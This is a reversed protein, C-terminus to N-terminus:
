PPGREADGDPPTFSWGARADWGLRWGLHTKRFHHPGCLLDLNTLRTPGGRAFDVFAHDIQLGRTAGCGPVVCRGKDRALLAARVERPVHRTITSVVTVDTGTVVLRLLADRLMDRAMEVPVSGIGQVECTEGDLTYGRRLADLDVLIIGEVPARRARAPRPARRGDTSGAPSTGTASPPPV